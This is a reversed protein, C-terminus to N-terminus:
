QINQRKFNSGLAFYFIEPASKRDEEIEKELVLKVELFLQMKCCCKRHKTRLYM